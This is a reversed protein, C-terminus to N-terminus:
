QVVFSFYTLLYIQSGDSPLETPDPHEDDQVYIRFYQRQGVPFDGTNIKFHHYWSHPPSGNPEFPSQHLYPKTIPEVIMNMEPKSDFEYLHNSIKYKNYTLDGGYKFDGETRQDIVLIWIDMTTNQPFIMPDIISPRSDHRIGTTDNEYALVGYFSPVLDPIIPSKGFIDPAGDEIWNAILEIERKSLTDYLPMRGLVADDTTIREHLWSEAKNGPVVRMEFDGNANNKEVRHYVLTNYSSQVTRFDPEFHGDHCGPVACTSSFIYLHLGMFTASDVPNSSTPNDYSVTDFPNPPIEAPTYSRDESCMMLTVSLLALMFLASIYNGKM